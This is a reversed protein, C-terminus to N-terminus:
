PLVMEVQAGNTFGLEHLRHVFDPGGMIQGIEATQGANLLNLPILEHLAASRNTAYEFQSEIEIEMCELHEM